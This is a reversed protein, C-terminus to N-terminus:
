LFDYAEIDSFVATKLYSSGQFDHFYLFGARNYERGISLVCLM